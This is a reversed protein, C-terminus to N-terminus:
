MLTHIRELSKLMQDLTATSKNTGVSLRFREMVGWAQCGIMGVMHEPKMEEATLLNLM